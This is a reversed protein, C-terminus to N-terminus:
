LSATKEARTEVKIKTVVAKGENNTKHQVLSLYMLWFVAITSNFVVRQEVRLVYFNFTNIPLWLKGANIIVTSLDEKMKLRIADKCRNWEFFLPRKETVNQAL